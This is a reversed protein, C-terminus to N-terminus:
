SAFPRRKSDLVQTSYHQSRQATNAHCMALRRAAPRWSGLLRAAARRIQPGPSRSFGVLKTHELRGRARELPLELSGLAALLEAESGARRAVTLGVAFAARVRRMLHRDGHPLCAPCVCALKERAEPVDTWGVLQKVRRIGLVDKVAVSRPVVVQAGEPSKLVWFAAATATRVSHAEGYRGCHVPESDPVRFYVAVLREDHGRRLERLWQFTTWFDAVVPMAYLARALTVSTSLSTALTAKAGKLGSRRIARESSARALHVLRM